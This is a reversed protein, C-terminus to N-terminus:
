IAEIKKKLERARDGMATGDPNEKMLVDLVTLAKVKDNDCLYANALMWGIESMHETYANYTDSQSDKWMIELETVTANLNTETEINTYIIKLKNEVEDSEGRAFETTPFYALYESGLSTVQEYKYYKYGGLVVCILVSAAVSFPLLIRRLTVIRAPKKVGSVKAAAKEIDVLSQEKISNIINQDDTRGVEKMTKVLRSTAIAKNRLVENESVLRKFEMEEDATLQGKLYRSLMEDFHGLYKDEMTNM